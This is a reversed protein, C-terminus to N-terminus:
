SQGLAAGKSTFSPRVIRGYHSLTSLHSKWFVSCTGILCWGCVLKENGWLGMVRNTRKLLINDNLIESLWTHHTMGAYKLSLCSFKMVIVNLAPQVVTLFRAKKKKVKKNIRTFKVDHVSIENM